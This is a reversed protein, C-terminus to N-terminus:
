LSLIKRGKHEVLIEDNTGFVMTINPSQLVNNEKQLFYIKLCSNKTAKFHFFTENSIFYLQKQKSEFGSFYLRATINNTSGQFHIKLKGNLKRIEYYLKTQLEM